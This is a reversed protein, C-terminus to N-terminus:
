FDDDALCDDSDDAGGICQRVTDMAFGRGMAFRMLKARLEYPSAAKLTRRKAAIIPRLAEAWEEASIEALGAEATGEAVGKLRLAQSIKRPGWGSFRLKDRVFLRCFREDDVYKDARLRQLIREQADAPLQWRRMKERMEGSSHEAQSCLAALKLLAEQEGIEKKRAYM